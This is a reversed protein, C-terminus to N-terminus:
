RTMSGFIKTELQPARNEVSALQEPTHAALWADRLADRESTMQVLGLVAGICLWERYYTGGGAAQGFAKDPWNDWGFRPYGRWQGLGGLHFAEWLQGPFLTSFDIPAAFAPGRGMSLTRLLPLLHEVVFPAAKGAALPPLATRIESVADVISAQRRYRFVGAFYGQTGYPAFQLVPAKEAALGFFKALAPWVFAGRVEVDMEDPKPQEPKRLHKNTGLTLVIVVSVEDEPSRLTAKEAQWGLESALSKALREIWKQDWAKQAAADSM